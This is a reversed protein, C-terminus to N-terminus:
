HAAVAYRAPFDSDYTLAVAELAVLPMPPLGANKAHAWEAYALETPEPTEDPRASSPLISM